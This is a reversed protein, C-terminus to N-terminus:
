HRPPAAKATAAPCSPTPCASVESLWRLEWLSGRTRMMEGRGSGNFTMRGVIRIRRGVLGQLGRLGGPRDRLSAAPMVAVVARHRSALGKLGYPVRTSLWLRVMPVAKACAPGPPLAPMHRVRVLYGITAVSTGEIAADPKEPLALVQRLSLARVPGAPAAPAGCEAAPAPMAAGLLIGALLLPRVIEAVGM